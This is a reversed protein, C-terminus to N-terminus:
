KLIFGQDPKGTLRDKDTGELYDDFSEPDNLPEIHVFVEASGLTKKIKREIKKSIEHGSKISWNGPVLLHFFIFNKSAAVRTYLSHYQIRKETFGDLIGRIRKMDEECMSSDMLGSVSRRILNYGTYLINLAVGIAILPDLMRYGTINVLLLGALVGATTWVDTLLHRGDAELTISRYKKGARILTLATILNVASAAISIIMGTGLKELDHPNIIREIASVGIAIAALIILMGESVSSFYEAKSHGFPHERDPPYLAISLMIFAIVAAALNILSELADSLLGVSGTIYFAIFKLFITLVSALISLLLFNAHTGTRFM